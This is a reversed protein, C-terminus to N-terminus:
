NQVAALPPRTPAEGTLLRTLVGSMREFGSEDGHRHCWVALLLADVARVTALFGAEEATWARGYGEQFARLLAAGDWHRVLDNSMKAVDLVAPGPRCMETDIVTLRNGDWLWNRATYDAHRLVTPPFPGALLDRALADVRQVQTDPLLGQARPLYRDMLSRLDGRGDDFPLPRPAADHLQRLAAGAAQYMAETQPQELASRAPVRALILELQGPDDHLLDPLLGTHAWTAYGYQERVHKRLERHRKLVVDRGAWRAAYVQSEGHAWGIHEGIELM